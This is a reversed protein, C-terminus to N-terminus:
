LVKLNKVMSLMIDKCSDLSNETNIYNYVVAPKELYLKFNLERYRDIDDSTLEDKRSLIIDNKADLQILWFTKPVFKLLTKWNKRMSTKEDLFSINELFSDQFFRDIFITKKQFTSIFILYPYYLLSSILVLIYHRDDHQDKEPKKGLKQKLIARNIPYVINYLTSRRVIKKFRKYTIKDKQLNKLVETFLTTKGVGDPGLIPTINISKLIKINLNHTKLSDTNQFNLIITRKYLSNKEFIDVSCRNYLQRDISFSYGNKSCLNFIITLISDLKKLDIYISEREINIILNNNTIEDEIKIYLSELNM